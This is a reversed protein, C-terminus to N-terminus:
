PASARPRTWEERKRISIERGSKGKERLCRRRKNGRPLTANNETCPDPLPACRRASALPLGDGDARAVRAWSPSLPVTAQRQTRCSLGSPFFSHALRREGKKRRANLFFYFICSFIWTMRRRMPRAACRARAVKEGKKKGKVRIGVLFKRSIGGCVQRGRARANTPGSQVKTEVRSKEPQFHPLSSPFVWM